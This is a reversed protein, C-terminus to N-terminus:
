GEENAVYRGFPFAYIALEDPVDHLSVMVLEASKYGFPRIYCNEQYNEEQLLAILIDTLEAASQPIDMRMLSASQKFREFHDLPRFLYMQKHEDNWYGRLGGFVGTGYQLAHTSISITATDFPVIEGRFYAYKPRQAPQM